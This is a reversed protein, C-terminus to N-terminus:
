PAVQLDSEVFIVSGPDPDPLDFLRASTTWAGIISAWALVTEARLADAASHVGVRAAPLGEGM